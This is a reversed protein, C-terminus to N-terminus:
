VVGSIGGLAKLYVGEQEKALLNWDFNRAWKRGEAGLWRRRQDDAVLARMAAALAAADGSPVLLGTEGDCIADRLGSIDTGIVAKGVAAAEVAVMGWGEYRSPLCGLLARRLLEGQEEDSVNAVVEVRDAVGERRVLESVKALQAASGRGALKLAVHPHDAALRAFAPILVDLGKTHIDIRGFYLVYPEEVSELAFYREAVGNCVCDVPLDRGKLKSRIRDQVSPSVTLIRDYARLVREEALWSVGGVLPRKILAHHGMFHQFFLLGRRRLAAPVRLPAFASFENVWLDWDLKRLQDIANLCYGLRSRGYSAASGVRLIRIGDIEAELDAGPFLGCILTIEHREALRRYIEMARVAGGGGLWPNAIDDYILHCIKLPLGKSRARLRPFARCAIARCRRRM